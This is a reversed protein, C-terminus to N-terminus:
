TEKTIKSSFDTVDDMRDNCTKAVGKSYKLNFKWASHNAYKTFYKTRKTMYAAVNEIKMQADVLDNIINFLHGKVGHFDDRAYKMIIHRHTVIGRILGQM